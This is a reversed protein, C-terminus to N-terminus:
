NTHRTAVKGHGIRTGTARDALLARGIGHGQATPAVALKGIYYAAGEPRGFVCGTLPGQTVFFDEHLAKRSLDEVSLDMMSPAPDVRGVEPLFAAMMLDHLATWKQFSEPNCDIRTM